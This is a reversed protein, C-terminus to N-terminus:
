GERNADIIITTISGAIICFVVIGGLIWIISFIRGAITRPAKDGYGVTTMSIFAWWVGTYPPSLISIFAWWVGTHHLYDYLQSTHHLHDYM